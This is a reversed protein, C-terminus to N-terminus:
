NTPVDLSPFCYCHSSPELWCVKQIATGRRIQFANVSRRCYISHPKLFSSYLMTPSNLWFAFNVEPLICIGKLNLNIFAICEKFVTVTSDNVCSTRNDLLIWLSSSSADPVSDIMDKSIHCTNDGKMIHRVSLSHKSHSMIAPRSCTITRYLCLNELTSQPSIVIANLFLYGLKTGLIQLEVQM